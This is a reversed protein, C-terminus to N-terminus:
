SVAALGVSWAASYGAEFAAIWAAQEPTFAEGDKRETVLRMSLINFQSEVEIGDFREAFKAALQERFEDNVQRNLREAKTAM